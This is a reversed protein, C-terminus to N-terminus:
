GLLHQKFLLFDIGILQSVNGILLLPHTRAGAYCGRPIYRPTHNSLLKEATLEVVTDVAHESSM